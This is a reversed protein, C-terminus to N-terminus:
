KKSVEFAFYFCALGEVLRMLMDIYFFSSAPIGVGFVNYCGLVVGAVAIAGYGILIKQIGEMDSLNRCLFVILAMGLNSIGLYQFLVIHYVDTQPVGYDHLSGVSNFLMMGGTLFGYIALIILFTSIKKMPNITQNSM